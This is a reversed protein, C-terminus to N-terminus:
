KLVMKRANPTSSGTSSTTMAMMASTANMMALTRPTSSVPLSCFPKMNKKQPTAAMQNRVMIGLTCSGFKTVAGSKMPSRPLPPNMAATAMIQHHKAPKSVHQAMPSSIRWGCILMGRAMISEGNMMKTTFARNWHNRTPM